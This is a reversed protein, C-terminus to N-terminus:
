VRQYDSKRADDNMEIPRKDGQLFMEQKLRRSNFLYVAIGETLPARFPEM